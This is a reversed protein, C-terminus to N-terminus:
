NAENGYACRYTVRKHLLPDFTMYVCFASTHHQRFTWYSVCDRLYYAVYTKDIMDNIISPNPPPDLGRIYDLKQDPFIVNHNPERQERDKSLDIWTELGACMDTRPINFHKADVNGGIFVSGMDPIAFIVGLAPEHGVNKTDGYMLIPRGDSPVTIDMNEPYLWARNSAIETDRAVDIQGQAADAQRKAEIFARGAFVAAAGSVILAIFVVWFTAWAADAQRKSQRLQDAENASQSTKQYENIVSSITNAVGSKASLQSSPEHPNTAKNTKKIGHVYIIRLFASIFFGGLVYWGRPDGVV